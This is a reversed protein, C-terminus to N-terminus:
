AFFDEADGAEVILTSNSGDRDIELAITEGPAHAWIREYIDIRRRVAADGVSVIMDGPQMGSRDGPSGPIVGAVVTRDPLEHCFMGLWARPPRSTRRGNALLEDAHRFYNGAPIALTARGINGLNLSVIGVIEGRANCVPGGGLGPNAASLWIAPDLRYEWYADFSDLSTVIGANTRREDGGVSALLFVDDGREPVERAAPPLPEVDIPSTRLVAIGSAYDHAVVAAEGSNGFTDVIGVTRAGVVVYNVTVILGAADVVAGTGFRHSGLIAVSAHGTPVEAAITVTARAVRRLLDISGDV